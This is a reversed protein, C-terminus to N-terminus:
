IFIYKVYNKDQKIRVDLWICKKNQTKEEKTERKKYETWHIFLKSYEIKIRKIFKQNESSNKLINVYQVGTHMKSKDLIGLTLIKDKM